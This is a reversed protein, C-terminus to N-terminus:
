TAPAAEPAAGHRVEQLGKRVLILASVVSYASWMMAMGPAGLRPVLLLIGLIQLLGVILYTRMPYTAHGLAHLLIRSWYFVNAVLVGALLLVMAPYAAGFEPGYWSLFWSGLVTLGLCAPVAWTSAILSGTRLLHRVNAWQRAAAERALERYTTSILPDIPVFIVNIFTRAAKYYGVEIPTSLWSLWLIDSDRTVLNITASANTSLAFKALERADGRLTALPTIWWRGEWHRRAEVFAALTIAVAWAAKGILYALVIAQLGGHASFAGAILLLTLLSQGVTFAAILRFRNLYQLLATSSEAMLNALLVLGYLSFMGAVSPDKALTRAAWPSLLVVLAYALVSSLMETLGAAKFVAMARRPDGETSYKGVYRIVLEGMRFSTLRNINSAFVTIIGLTGYGAVGLLRAAMLTQVFSLAASATNASLIYGSNRLLRQILPNQVFRDPATRLPFLHPWSAPM